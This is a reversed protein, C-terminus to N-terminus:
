LLDLANLYVFREVVSNKNVGYRSCIEDLDTSIKQSVSCLYELAAAWLEPKRIIPLKEKDFTKIYEQWAKLISNLIKENEHVQTKESALEFVRKYTNPIDSRTKLVGVKVDVVSGNLYAKYPEKADMKKLLFLAENKIDDLENHSLIFNRLIDEAESDEFSGVMDLIAHKIYNDGHELGWLLISKLSGKESWLKKLEDKSYGMYRNLLKVRSTIEEFPVQYVYNLVPIKRCEDQNSVLRIYYKAISNLPDIKLIDLWLERAESISGINYYSVATYHMIKKDYPSLTLINKLSINALRHEDLECFTLAIKQMEDLQQVSFNSILNLYRKYEKLNDTKKMLMAMNCTAYVNSPQKKLVNKTIKVAKDYKGKCFYALALNNKAYLFDNIDTISELIKIAEDYEGKDIFDKGTISLQLNNLNAVDAIPGIIEKNQLEDKLVDLFEMTDTYFEGDPDKDLYKQFNEKALEFEGLEMYNCGIGFYCEPIIYSNRRLLKFFLNNSEEFHGIETLIEAIAIQNDIDGPEIDSAKRYYYLADLFDNKDLHKEALRIFFQAPQNFSLIKNEAKRVNGSKVKM